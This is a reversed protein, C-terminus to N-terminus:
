SPDWIGTVVHNKLKSDKAYLITVLGVLENTWVRQSWRFTYDLNIELVAGDCNSVQSLSSPVFISIRKLCNIWIRFIRCLCPQQFLCCIRYIKSRHHYHARTGVRITRNFRTTWKLKVPNSLIPTHSFIKLFTVFPMRISVYQGKMFIKKTKTMWSVNVQKFNAISVLFSCSNHAFNIFVGFRRWQRREPTKITLKSCIKCM